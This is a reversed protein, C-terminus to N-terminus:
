PFSVCVQKLQGGMNTGVLMFCIDLTYTSIYTLTATLASQNEQRRKVRKLGKIKLMTNQM